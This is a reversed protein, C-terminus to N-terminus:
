NNKIYEIFQKEDVKYKATIMKLFSYFLQHDVEKRKKIHSNMPLNFHRIAKELKRATVRMRFEKFTERALSIKLEYNKIKVL